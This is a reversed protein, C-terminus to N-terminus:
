PQRAQKREIESSLIATEYDTQPMDSSDSGCASTHVGKAFLVAVLATM